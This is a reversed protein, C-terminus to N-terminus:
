YANIDGLVCNEPTRYKFGEADRAAYAGFLWGETGDDDMVSDQHYASFGSERFTRVTWTKGGATISDEIQWFSSESEDDYPNYGCRMYGTQTGLSVKYIYYSDYEALRIRAIQDIEHVAITEGCHLTALPESLAIDKYITSHLAKQHLIHLTAEVPYLPAFFGDGRSKSEDYAMIDVDQSFVEDYIGAQREAEAEAYGREMLLEKTLPVRDEPAPLIGHYHIRALQEESATVSLPEIAVSQEHTWRWVKAYEWGDKECEVRGTGEAIRSGNKGRYPDDALSRTTSCSSLLVGWICHPSQWM